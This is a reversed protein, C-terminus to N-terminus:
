LSLLSRNRLIALAGFIKIDIKVNKQPKLLFDELKRLPVKLVDIEEADEGKGKQSFKVDPAFFLTAENSVLSTGLPFKFVPILKKALYGTEELLERRAAKKPSEGKKDIMGAPLEFVFSNLPIRFIKELIVEKEKTLAFIVVADKKEICEWIGKKKTKTLYEKKFVNLYKGRYVLKQNLIKM